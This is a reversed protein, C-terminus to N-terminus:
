VFYLKLFFIVLQNLQFKPLAPAQSQMWWLNCQHCCVSAFSCPFNFCRPACIDVITVVCSFVILCPVVCEKCLVILHSPKLWCISIDLYQKVQWSFYVFFKGAFILWFMSLNIFKFVALCVLHSQKIHCQTSACVWLIKKKLTEVM